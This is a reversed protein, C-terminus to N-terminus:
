ADSSARDGHRRADVDRDGVPPHHHLARLALELAVQRALDGHALLVARQEHLPRVVLPLVAGQVTQGPRQDVVHHDADRSPEGLLQLDDADAIAGRGLAGVAYLQGEPEAM